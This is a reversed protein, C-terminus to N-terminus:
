VVTLSYIKRRSINFKEILQLIGLLILFAPYLIPLQRRIKKFFLLCSLSCSLLFIKGPDGIGRLFRPSPSLLTKVWTCKRPLYMTRKFKQVKTSKLEKIKKSKYKQVKTSNTIQKQKQKERKRQLFTSTLGDLCSLRLSSCIIAPLQKSIFREQKTWPRYDL